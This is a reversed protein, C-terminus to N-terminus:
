VENDKALSDIAERLRKDGIMYNILWLIALVGLLIKSIFDTASLSFFVALSSCLLSINKGQSMDDVMAKSADRLPATELQLRMIQAEPSLEETKKM